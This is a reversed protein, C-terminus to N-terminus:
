QERNYVQILKNNNKAISLIRVMHVMTALKVFNNINIMHGSCSVVAGYSCIAEDFTVDSPLILSFDSINALDCTTTNGIECLNCSLDKFQIPTTQM